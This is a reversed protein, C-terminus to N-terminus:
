YSNIEGLCDNVTIQLMDSVGSNYKFYFSLVFDIYFKKPSNISVKSYIICLIYGM